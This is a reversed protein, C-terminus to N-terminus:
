RRKGMQKDAVFQGSGGLQQEANVAIPAPYFCRSLWTSGV